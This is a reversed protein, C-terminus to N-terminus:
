IQGYIDKARDAFALIKHDGNTQMMAERFQKFEESSIFLRVGDIDLTYGGKKDKSVPVPSFLTFRGARAALNGDIEQSFVENLEIWEIWSSLSFVWASTKGLACSFKNGSLIPDVRFEGNEAASLFEPFPQEENSGELVSLKNTVWYGYLAVQLSSKRAGAGVHGILRKMDLPAVTEVADTLMECIYKALARTVWRAGPMGVAPDPVNLDGHKGWREFFHVYQTDINSGIEENQLRVLWYLLKYLSAVPEKRVWERRRIGDQGYAECWYRTMFVLEARTLLEGARERTQVNLLGLRPNNQLKELDEHLGLSDKVELKWASEDILRRVIESDSIPNGTDDWLKKIRDLLGGTEENFRVFISRDKTDKKTAM